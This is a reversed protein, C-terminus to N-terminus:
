KSLCHGLSSGKAILGCIEGLVAKGDDELSNTYASQLTKVLLHM